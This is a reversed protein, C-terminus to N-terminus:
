LQERQSRRIGREGPYTTTSQSSWTSRLTMPSTTRSAEEKVRLSVFPKFTLLQSISRDDADQQAPQTDSLVPMTSPRKASAHLVLLATGDPRRARLHICGQVVQHRGRADARRHDRESTGPEVLLGLGMRRAPRDPLGLDDQRDHDNLALISASWLDPGPICPSDYPNRNNTAVYAIGSNPDLVWPGGWSQGVGGPSKGGLLTSCTANEKYGWDNYLTANLTSAPLTKLNVAGTGNFIWAGTM